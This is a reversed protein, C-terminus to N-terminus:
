KTTVKKAASWASYQAKGNVMKYARVRVYYTKKKGLKKVTKKKSKAGKVKVTKLIQKKGKVKKKFKKTTSYQIQYGDVGAVPAWTLTFQKKGAKAKAKKANVKALKPITTTYTDGCIACKYTMIGTAKFTAAKTVTSKYDHKCAQAAKTIKFDVVAADRNNYGNAVAIYIVADKKLTVSKTSSLAIEANRGSAKSYAKVTLNKAAHGYQANDSTTLTYENDEEAQFRISAAGGYQQLWLTYTEGTKAALMNNYYENLGYENQEVSYAKNGAIVIQGYESFRFWQTIAADAGSILINRANGDYTEFTGTFTEEYTKANANTAIPFSLLMALCLLLSLFQKTSKQM